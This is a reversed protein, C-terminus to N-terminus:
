SYLRWIALRLLHRLYNIYEMYELKSKGRSRSRFTYPVECILKPKCKVLIELLLKFGTPSLKVGEVISRKVLFFGSVCDRVRRAEPLIVRALFIAGKSVLRRYIPWDEMGGGKIYRSAVVLDYGEYAKRVLNPIVEPPHQLDADMVVIIDGSAERFGRLVASALGRENVRRIVKVPYMRSLEKAKMWTGDPSDDDVIIIEYDLGRMAHDVRKFLEELNERENYTPIVISIM